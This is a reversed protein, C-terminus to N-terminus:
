KKIFRNEALSLLFAKKEESNMNKSNLNYKKNKEVYDDITCIVRAPNGAIVVNDPFSKTVISGAAIIVHSGITVGPMILVNNGIYVWNGIIVKGFCDFNPYLYRVAHSGGHTFM